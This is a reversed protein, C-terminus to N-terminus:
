TKQLVSVAVGALALGLLVLTCADLTPISAQAPQTVLQTLNTNTNNAPNPDATSSSVNATNSVVSGGPTSANVNVTLQLASTTGGGLSSIASTVTGTSGIAPTTSTWGAPIV